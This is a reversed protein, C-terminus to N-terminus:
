SLGVNDFFADSNPERGLYETLLGLEPLSAGKELVIRRYRRGAESNLPDAKFAAYYMDSSFVQSYLYGYYGADYGSVIHHSSSCGQGWHRFRVIANANM